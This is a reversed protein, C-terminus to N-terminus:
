KTQLVKDKKTFLYCDARIQFSPQTKSSKLTIQTLKSLSKLKPIAQYKYPLTLTPQTPM